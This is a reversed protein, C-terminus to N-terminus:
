CLFLDGTNYSNRIKVKPKILRIITQRQSTRLHGKEKTKSASNVFIKKLKNWFKEHLEKTLGDNGPSEDNQM